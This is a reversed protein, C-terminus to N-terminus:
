VYNFAKKAADLSNEALFLNNYGGREYLFSKYVHYYELNKDLKSTIVILGRYTGNRYVKLSNVYIGDLYFQHEQQLKFIGDDRKDGSQLVFRHKMFEVSMDM